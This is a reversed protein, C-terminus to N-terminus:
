SAPNLEPKKIATYLVGDKEFSIKNYEKSIEWGTINTLRTNAKMAHKTNVLM